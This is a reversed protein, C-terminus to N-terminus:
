KVCLAMLYWAMKPFSLSVIEDTMSFLFVNKFYDKLLNKFEDPEFEHLHSERRRSSAYPQSAINPTGIIAFGNDATMQSLNGVVTPIKELPFHEIVDLSVVTDYKKEASPTATLDMKEFSLNSIDSYHNQNRKVMAEDFDVGTVHDAFKSLFVSGMGQGCGADLVRSKKELLRAAFKYRALVIFLELPHEKFSVGEIHDFIEKIEGNEQRFLYQSHSM